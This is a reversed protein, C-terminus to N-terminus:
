IFSRIRMGYGPRSIARKKHQLELEDARNSSCVACADIVGSKFDKWLQKQNFSTQIRSGRSEITERLEVIAGIGTQAMRRLVLDTNQDIQQGLLGASQTHLAVIENNQQQLDKTLLQLGTELLLPLHLRLVNTTQIEINRPL